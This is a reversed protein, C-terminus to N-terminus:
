CLLVSIAYPTGYQSLTHHATSLYRITSRVPIAYPAGYQCLETSRFRITGTSLYRVTSHSVRHQLLSYYQTSDPVSIAYSARYQSLTEKETSNHYRGVRTSHATRYQSAPSLVSAHSTTSVNALTSGEVVPVNAITRSTSSVCISSQGM